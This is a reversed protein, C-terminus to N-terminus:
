RHAKPPTTLPRWGLDHTLHDWWTTGAPPRYPRLSRRRLHRILSHVVHTNIMFFQRFPRGHGHYVSRGATQRNVRNILWIRYGLFDLGDNRDHSVQRVLTKTRNITLGFPGEM